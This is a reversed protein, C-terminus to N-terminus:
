KRGFVFEKGFDKILEAKSEEYVRRFLKDICIRRQSDTLTNWKNEVDRVAAEHTKLIPIGGLRTWTALGHEAYKRNGSLWGFNTKAVDFRAMINPRIEIDCGSGIGIRRNAIEAYAGQMLFAGIGNEILEAISMLDDHSGIYITAGSQMHGYFWTGVGTQLKFYLGKEYLFKAVDKEKGKPFSLHLKWGRSSFKSFTSENKETQFYVKNGTFKFRRQWIGDFPGNSARVKLIEFEEKTLIGPIISDKFKSLNDLFKALLAGTLKSIKYELVAEAVFGFKLLEKKKLEPLFDLLM